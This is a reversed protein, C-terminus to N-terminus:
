RLTFLESPLQQPVIVKLAGPIVKFVTAEDQQSTTFGKYDGDVQIPEPYRTYIKVVQGREYRIWQRRQERRLLFDLLVVIRGFINRKLVVCIDLLGDDCKALWTYKLAGGYLQTNGIIIQLAHVKITKGDLELMVQFPSHGFGYWTAILLYGLVGLRKLPTQEVAHAVAGDIGIGAMLLFYHENLQCLDITRTQGHVLVERAGAFDLPIGVERAWVNVTGSPIVGLATSSGALEQIVENITGDGGIAIVADIQEQVAARAFTGANGAEQTLQLEAQWGNTRLYSLTDAIQQEHHLYSGGATPNAILLARIPRTSLVSIEESTGEQM